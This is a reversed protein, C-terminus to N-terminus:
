GNDADKFLGGAFMLKRAVQVHWDRSEYGFFLAVPAIVILALEALVLVALMVIFFVSIAIDIIPTLGTKVLEWEFYLVLVVIILSIVLESM